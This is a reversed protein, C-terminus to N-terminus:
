PNGDDSKGAENGGDGSKDEGDGANETGAEGQDAPGLDEKINSIKLLKGPQAESGEEKTGIVTVYANGQSDFVMATPKDLKTIEVANCAESNGEIRVLKFLGGKTTDHWSFDLAYLRNQPSYAVASIDSLGTKFNGKMEGTAEDYFTLLSDGPVTIEGMQGVALFGEPSVTIGVPADVGTAEKTAITRKYDSLTNGSRTAKSIWGKVDDGNCTVFLGTDTVAIAYFNGEGVVEGEPGLKFNDTMQSAKIAPAGADPVKYVRLLEEGDVLGGGGVVLTEKDLFALGLPGVDYQPGTGYIDKPFDTIVDEMSGGVVRVVRLGGSDAVFVHGTEPQIAVGCPNNLGEAITEIKLAGPQNDDQGFSATNIMVALCLPALLLKRIM